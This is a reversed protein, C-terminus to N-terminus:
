PPQAVTALSRLLDAKRVPKTLFDDMGADLCADRDSAFGNATLAVIRPQSGPTARIIKTAALGDLHPMSMDMFVIDPQIKESLEVAQKGDHAFHLCIDMGKFLKRIVLRNTKNDEAVLVTLNKPILVQQPRETKPVRGKPATFPLSITFRSGEGPRSRVTISGGMADALKRSITLGLGTGGFRRTTNTDAQAFPDFIIDLRDRPIGVGTDEVEVVLLPNQSNQTVAARVTVSGAETFEVANGVINLLLQRLRSDDLHISAPLGDNEFSLALGRADAQAQLLRVVGVICDKPNFDV